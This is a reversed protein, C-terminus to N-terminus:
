RIRLAAQAHPARHTILPGLDLRGQAMLELVAAIETLRQLDAHPDGGVKLKFFTHGYGAVVEELILLNDAM